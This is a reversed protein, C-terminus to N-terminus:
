RSPLGRLRAWFCHRGPAFRSPGSRRDGQPSRRDEFDGRNFDRQARRLGSQDFPGCGRAAPERYAAPRRWRALRLRHIRAALATKGGYEEVPHRFTGDRVHSRLRGTFVSQRARGGLRGDGVDPLHLCPQRDQLRGQDKRPRAPGIESVATRSSRDRAHGDGASDARPDPEARSDAPFAPWCAARRQREDASGKFGTRSVVRMLRAGSAGEGAFLPLAASCRM